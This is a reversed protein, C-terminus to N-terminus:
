NSSLVSPTRRTPRGGARFAIRGPVMLNLTTGSGQVSAITLTAGIREARERMGRLGFHGEKGRELTASDMGVGNDSVSLTLSHGKNLTIKLTDAGSHVWANRIAEYAIRHIEEGVIPHIEKADGKLSLTTDIRTHTRCEDIAQRIAGVLDSTGTSSTRLSNLATRGEEVARELWGELQRVARLLRVHDDPEKLAHDVVLKSGQVTQLFTDHLDRAVRTREALREDFRASLQESLQLVHWRYAGAAALLVMVVIVALFWSTEYFHPRQRISYVTGVRDWIGNRNCARIRLAHIGAPINSYIARPNPGADLWETDVGDLRYQLRIKEPATIEVAAFDIEVHSTGPALVLEHGARMTTRGVMVGRVYIAPSRAPAAFRATDLRALGRPTAIWLAGQADFSMNPYGDSVQTPALGDDSSVLEHDLPEDPQRSRAFGQLPVRHVEIGGFWLEGADSQVMSFEQHLEPVPEARDGDLRLAYAQDDLDIFLGGARDQGAPIAAAHPVGPLPEFRGGVLRDVGATTGALIQGARDEFVRFVSDNALGEASGYRRISGNRLVFIGNRTGFWVSGDRAPVISTVIEGPLFRTFRGEHMRFVGGGWTGAWLDRSADEALAWVCSNLLGDAEKYTRWRTGDFRALGGCNAGAWVVGDRAVLVTMIVDNPLGDSTTFMRVARDKFRYLGDGNTAVWLAGDRDGFLSRVEMSPAVCELAEATARFLGDVKAIWVNGQADEYSRFAEHGTPGFPGLNNCRSGSCRTVGQSSCYWIDGRRDHMVHYVDPASEKSLSAPLAPSAHDGDWELLGSSTVLLLHRRSTPEVQKISVRPGVPSFRDGDHHDHRFLGEATGVWLVGDEDFRLCQIANAAGIGPHYIVAASLDSESLHAAPVRRLDQQTGLWLDGDPAAVITVTRTGEFLHFHSGDFRALGNGNLIMWLFGEPTQQLNDAIGSPLGDDPTIHTRIFDPFPRASELAFAPVAAILVVFAAAATISESLFSGAGYPLRLRM